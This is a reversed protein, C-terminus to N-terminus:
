ALSIRGPNATNATSRTARLSTHKKFILGSELNRQSFARRQEGPKHRTTYLEFVARTALAQGNEGLTIGVKAWQEDVM